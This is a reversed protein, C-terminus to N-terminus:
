MIVLKESLKETNILTNFNIKLSFNKFRDKKMVRDTIAKQSAIFVASNEKVAQEMVNIRSYMDDRSLAEIGYLVFQKSKLQYTKETFNKIKQNIKSGRIDDYTIILIKKNFKEKILSTIFAFGDENLGYLIPNEGKEISTYIKELTNSKELTRKYIDKM